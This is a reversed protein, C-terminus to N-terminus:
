FGDLDGQCTSLLVTIDLLEFFSGGNGLYGGLVGYCGDFCQCFM